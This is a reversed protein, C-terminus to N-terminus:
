LNYKKTAYYIETNEPHFIFEKMVKININNGNSDWMSVYTYDRILLMDIYTENWDIYGDEDFEKGNLIKYIMHALSSIREQLEDYHKIHEESITIKFDDYNMNEFKKIKM